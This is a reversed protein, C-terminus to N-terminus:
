DILANAHQGAIRVCTDLPDPIASCRRDLDLGNGPVVRAVVLWRTAGGTRETKPRSPPLARPDCSIRPRHVYAADVSEPGQAHSDSDVRGGCAVATAAFVATLQTAAIDARWSDRM